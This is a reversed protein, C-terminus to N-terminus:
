FPIDEINIEDDEATIPAKQPANPLSITVRGPQSPAAYASTRGAKNAAAERMTGTFPDAGPTFILDINCGAKQVQDWVELIEPTLDSPPNPTISYETQLGEGNREIVLDYGLPSGWSPNKAIATIAKLLSHQTLELCQVRREGYNFIFMAWFEKLNEKVEEVTIPEGERRYVVEDQHNWFKNGRVPPQLIRIRTIGQPLKRLYASSPKRPEYDPPLFDSM